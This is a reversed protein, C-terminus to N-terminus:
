EEFLWLLEKEDKPLGWEGESRIIDASVARKRDQLKLIKEEVSGRAVMRYAFV